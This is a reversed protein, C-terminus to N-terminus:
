PTGEIRNGRKEYASRDDETIVVRAKGDRGITVALRLGGVAMWWQRESMQEVHLWNGVVLEDFIVTGSLDAVPQNIHDYPIRQPACMEIREGDSKCTLPPRVSERVTGRASTEHLWAQLRWRAGPPLPRARARRKTRSM